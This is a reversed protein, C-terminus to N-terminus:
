SLRLILCVMTDTITIHSGFNSNREILKDNKFTEKKSHFTISIIRYTENGSNDDYKLDEFPEKEHQEVFIPAIPDLKDEIANTRKPSIASITSTALKKRSNEISLVKPIGTGVFRYKM